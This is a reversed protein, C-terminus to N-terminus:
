IHQCGKALNINSVEPKMEELMSTTITTRQLEINKEQVEFALSQLQGGLSDVRTQM